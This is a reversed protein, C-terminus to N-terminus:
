GDRGGLPQEPERKPIKARIRRSRIQVHFVRLDGPLSKPKRISSMTMPKMMPSKGPRSLKECMPPNRIPIQRPSVTRREGGEIRRLIPSLSGGYVGICGM